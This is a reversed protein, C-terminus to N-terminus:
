RFGHGDPVSTRKAPERRSRKAQQNGEFPLRMVVRLILFILVTSGAALAFRELGAAIGVAATAWISAATTLGLLSPSLFM